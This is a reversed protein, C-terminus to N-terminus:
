SDDDTAESNLRDIEREFTRTVTSGTVTGGYERKLIRTIPKPAPIVGSTRAREILLDIFEKEEGDLTSYWSRSGKPVNGAEAEEILADLNSKTGGSM